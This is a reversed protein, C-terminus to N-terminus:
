NVTGKCVSSAYMVQQSNGVELVNQSLSGKLQQIDGFFEAYVFCLLAEVRVESRAGLLRGQREKPDALLCNGNGGERLSSPGSTSLYLCLLV